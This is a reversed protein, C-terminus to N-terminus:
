IWNPSQLFYYCISALLFPSFFLLSYQSVLFLWNLNFNCFWNILFSRDITVLVLVWGMLLFTLVCLLGQTIPILLLMMLSSVVVWCSYSRTLFTSFLTMKFEKTSGPGLVTPVIPSSTIPAILPLMWTTLVESSSLGIWHSKLSFELHVYSYKKQAKNLIFYWFHWKGQKHILINM